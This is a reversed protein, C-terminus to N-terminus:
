MNSLLFQIVLSLFGAEVLLSYPRKLGFKALSLSLLRAAVGLLVPFGFLVFGIFAVGAGLTFMIAAFVLAPLLAFFSFTALEHLNAAFMPIVSVVLVILALGYDSSAFLGKRTAQWTGQCRNTALYTGKWKGDFYVGEYAGFHNGAKRFKGQVSNSVLEPADVFNILERGVPGVSGRIGIEQSITVTGYGFDCTQGEVSYQDPYYNVKWAGDFGGETPRLIQAIIFTVVIAALLSLAVKGRASRPLTM